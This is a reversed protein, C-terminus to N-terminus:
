NSVPCFNPLKRLSGVRFSVVTGVEVGHYYNRNGEKDKTRGRALISKHWYVYHRGRSRHCIRSQLL